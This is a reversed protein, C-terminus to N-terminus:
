FLDFKMCERVEEKQIEQQIFRQDSGKPFEFNVAIREAFEDKADRIDVVIGEFHILKDAHEFYFRVDVRSYVDFLKPILVAVGSASLNSTKLPWSQPINVLSNDDHIQQHVDVYSQLLEALHLITQVLPIKAYKEQKFVRITEDLKFGFPLEDKAYFLDKNSKQISTALINLFALYKTEIMALYMFTKPSNEKIKIIGELGKLKSKIQMVYNPDKKPHQGHSILELQRGYFEIDTIILNVIESILEKQDTLKDLSRLARNKCQSIKKEIVSPFYNAGTAYIERKELPSSPLIFYRLPLDVRHYRRANGKRFWQHM